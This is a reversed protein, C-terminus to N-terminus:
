LLYLSTVSNCKSLANMLLSYAVDGSNANHFLVYHGYSNMTLLTLIKISADWKIKYCFTYRFVM